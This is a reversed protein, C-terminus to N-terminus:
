RRGEEIAARIEDATLCGKMRARMEDVLVNARKWRQRAGDTGASGAALSLEMIVEQNVSRRNRKAREKLRAHLDEPVNRITLTAMGAIHCCVGMM